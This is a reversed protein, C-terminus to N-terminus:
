DNLVEWGGKHDNAKLKAEMQQAFWLVEPRVHTVTPPESM